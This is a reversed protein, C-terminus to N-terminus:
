PRFFQRCAKGPVKGELTSEFGTTSIDTSKQWPQWCQAEDQTSTSARRVRAM